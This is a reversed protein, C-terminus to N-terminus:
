AVVRPPYPEPAPTLGRLPAAPAPALAARDGPRVATPMTDAPAPSPLCGLCCSVALMEPRDKQHHGQEHCSPRAVSAPLARALSGAAFVAAILVLLLTRWRSM